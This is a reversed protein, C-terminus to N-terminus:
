KLIDRLKKTRELIVRNSNRVYHLYSEKEQPINMNGDEKELYKISAKELDSKVLDIIKFDGSDDSLDEYLEKSIEDPDKRKKLCFGNPFDPYLEFLYNKFM